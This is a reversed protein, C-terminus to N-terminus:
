PAAEPEGAGQPGNALAGGVTMLTGLVQGLTPRAGLLLIDLVYCWAIESYLLTAISPANSLQLGRVRLSAQCAMLAGVSALPPAPATARM